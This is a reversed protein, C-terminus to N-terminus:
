NNISLLNHEIALKVMAASNKAGIKLLLNKRHTDITTSGLFLREAIEVNTLGEAILELIEKERRTLVIFPINTKQKLQQAVERSLYIDGKMVTDLANLLEIKTANKLIYGSAGSELMKSIFSQQNFTSLGIIKIDPYITKVEKCLDIGSKDPLNIDMLIVDPKLYRLESLCIAANRAHGSWILHPENQLLSKIGEIVMYHDDIIFLSINM